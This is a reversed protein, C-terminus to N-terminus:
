WGAAVREPLWVVADLRRAYALRPPEPPLAIGAADAMTNRDMEAEAPQLLWPAHHIETRYVRGAIDVTYLCYRETLWHDLTGPETRFVTGVPRYRASFDAPPAGGHTRRSHFYLTGDRAEHVSMSARLYPLHYMARAVAVALPNGVDLSFFYVGPRDGLTVYTRVNLEPFASIWPLAPLGRPRVHSVVFPTISLWAHGDFLDLTLGTPILAGLPRPDVSWHAFLLHSWRQAMIWRGPPLPWPRHTAETTPDETYGLV